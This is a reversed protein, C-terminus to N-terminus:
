ALGRKISEIGFSEVDDGAVVLGNMFCWLRDVHGDVRKKGLGYAITETAPLAGDEDPVTSAIGVHKATYYPQEGENVRIAIPIQQTDKRVLYWTGVERMLGAHKSSWGREDLDIVTAGTEVAVVLYVPCSGQWADGEM